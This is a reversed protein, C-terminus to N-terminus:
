AGALLAKFDETLFKVGTGHREFLRV